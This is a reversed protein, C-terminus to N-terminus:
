AVAVDAACSRLPLAAADGVLAHSVDPHTRAARAMAPSGDLSVVRHGLTRLDRSVRGEGCGIDVSLVGPPPVLALFAERHFRWYSDHDPTRAWAVWQDAVADWAARLSTM